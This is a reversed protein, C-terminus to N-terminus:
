VRTRQGLVHEETPQTNKNSFFFANRPNQNIIFIGNIYTNHLIDRKGMEIHLYCVPPIGLKGSHCMAWLGESNAKQKEDSIFGMKFTRRVSNEGRGWRRKNRADPKFGWNFELWAGTQPQPQPVETPEEQQLQDRVDAAWFEHVPLWSDAASVEANGSALSADDFSVMMPSSPNFVPWTKINYGLDHYEPSSCHSSFLFTYM